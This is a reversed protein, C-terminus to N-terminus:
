SLIRVRVSTQAVLFEEDGVKTVSTGSGKEM